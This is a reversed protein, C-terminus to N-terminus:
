DPSSPLSVQRRLRGFPGRVAIDIWWSGFGHGCRGDPDGSAARAGWYSLDLSMLM